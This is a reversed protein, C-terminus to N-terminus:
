IWTEGHDLSNHIFGLTYTLGIFLTGNEHINFVSCGNEVLESLLTWNQGLDSSCFLGMAFDCAYNEQNVTIHISELMSALIVTIYFRMGSKKLSETIFRCPTILMQTSVKLWWKEMIIPISLTNIIGGPIATIHEWTFDQTGLHNLVIIFM